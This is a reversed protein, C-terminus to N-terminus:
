KKSDTKSTGAVTVEARIKDISKKGFGKVKDLDDVTKFPTKARYAIIADAKSPGVGKISELESKTATNLNVAAFASSSFGFLSLSLITFLVVLMKKM